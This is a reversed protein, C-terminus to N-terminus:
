LRFDSRGVGPLGQLDIVFAGSERFAEFDIAGFAEHAVAVIVGDYQKKLPKRKVDLGYRERAERADVHPDVLDVMVGHEVLRRRLELAASEAIEGSNRRYSLGLLLVRAGDCAVHRQLLLRLTQKAVRGVVAANVRCAETVLTLELHERRANYLLGDIGSRLRVGGAFGPTFPMFGAKSGAVDLVEATEIGMKEYLLSLENMLAINVGRQVTELLAAAEAVRISPATRVGAPVINGFLESLAEATEPTSGAVVASVQGFAHASGGPAVRSPAYGFFFGDNAVLGSVSELLSAGIEETAGIFLTSEYVVTDGRFLVSGVSRTAEIVPGMEPMGTDDPPTPVAIVYIEAEGAQQISEPFALASKKLVQDGVVGDRDFGQRLEMLRDRDPVYLSTKFREAFALAMQLATPTGGVICIKPHNVDAEELRFATRVPM